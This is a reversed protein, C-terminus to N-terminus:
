PASDLLALTEVAREILWDALGAGHFSLCAEYGGRSYDAPMLAYGLWEDTHSVVVLSADGARARLASALESTPEAPLAILRADGLQFAAVPARAPLTRQLAGGLWPRLWWLLCGRRPQLPPAEFERQAARVRAGAAPHLDALAALAAQGLAAGLEQLAARERGARPATSAASASRPEQDGLPGPLFVSAWGREGLWRRAAGPLDGSYSRSAASLVTPHAGYAFLASRTTGADIRAVWLRHERPGDARRRNRALDLESWGSALRAPALAAVSRELARERAGALERARDADYPAGTVRAALWGPVYGGPGSHTHTAVLALADLQLRARAGELAAALERRAILLDAALLAIRHQEAEFVLARAEPADLVERAHRARLGGYGARAGGPPTPLPAVGLGARLEESGATIAGAALLALLLARAARRARIL